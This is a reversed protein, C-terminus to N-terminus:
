KPSLPAPEKQDRQYGDLLRAMALTVDLVHQINHYETECPHYDPHKGHYMQSLDAFARQLPRSNGHPYLKSFLGTVHDCVEIPDTTRIKDTIDFDSRRM